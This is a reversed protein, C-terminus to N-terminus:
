HCEYWSANNTGGGDYHFGVLSYGADCYFNSGWGAEGLVGVPYGVVAAFATVSFSFFVGAILSGIAIPVYSALTKMLSM